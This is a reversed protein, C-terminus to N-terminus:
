PNCPGGAKVLPGFSFVRATIANVLAPLVPVGEAALQESLLDAAHSIITTVDGCTLTFYIRRYLGHADQSTFVSSSNHGLWAAWYLYGEDRCNATLSPKVGGCAAPTPNGPGYPNEAGNPNFAATNGLRNIEQGLTTLKPAAKSYRKAATKLPPIAPRADRVFPRIQGHLIPTASNALDRLSTNLGDLRRAFPRLAGFTPGLQQALADVQKLSTQATSLTGPLEATARQVDPDQAAIKSLADNSATVFQTVDGRHNGIEATLINLNHVLDALQNSRQAVQSNLKDLDSNLPGLSGLVKGLNKSQGKLGQGAGVLLLRLYAQSDGDLAGLIEDLNVDPATNALPITGGEPVEGASKTGPDMEFFM